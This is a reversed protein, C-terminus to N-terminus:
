RESRRPPPLVRLAVGDLAAYAGIDAEMLYHPRGHIMKEDLRRWDMSEFLKVNQAQVHALFIQAGQAKATGVALRILAAGLGGVARFPAAVALRSGWWLGPEPQHIRVTGVIEDGHGFMCSSAALMICDDDIADRDDGAFIGQEVCFVRRRLAFCGAVQWAHVAAEIRYEGAFFPAPQLFGTEGLLPM